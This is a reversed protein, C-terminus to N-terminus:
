NFLFTLFVCAISKIKEQSTTELDYQVSIAFLRNIREVSSTDANLVIKYLFTDCELLFSEM